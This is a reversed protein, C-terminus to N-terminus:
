SFKNIISVKIFKKHEDIEEQKCSLKTAMRIRLLKPTLKPHEGYKDLIKFTLSEVEKIDIASCM